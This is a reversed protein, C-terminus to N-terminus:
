KGGDERADSGHPMDVNRAAPGPLHVTGQVGDTTGEAWKLPLSSQACGGDQRRANRLCSQAVEPGSLGRPRQGSFLQCSRLLLLGCVRRLSVVGPQSAAQM